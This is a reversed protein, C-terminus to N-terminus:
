LLRATGMGVRSGTESNAATAPPPVTAATAAFTSSRASFRKRGCSAAPAASPALSIRCKTSPACRGSAKLATTRV